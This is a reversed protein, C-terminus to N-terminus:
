LLTSRFIWQLVTIFPDFPINWVLVTIFPDFPINWVFVTIFPDFPINWVRIHQQHTQQESDALIIHISPWLSFLDYITLHLHIQSLVINASNLYLWIQWIHIVFLSNSIRNWSICAYKNSPLKTWALCTSSHIFSFVWKSRIMWHLNDQIFISFLKVSVMEM